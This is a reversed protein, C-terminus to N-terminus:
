TTLGLSVALDRITIESVPDVNYKFENSGSVFCICLDDDVSCTVKNDYLSLFKCVERASCNNVKSDLTIPSSPQRAEELQIGREISDISENLDTMYDKHGRNGTALLKKLAHQIAPCKVKYAEIVDYVDVWVGPKIERDYKNSM